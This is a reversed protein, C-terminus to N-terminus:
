IFSSDPDQTKCDKLCLSGVGSKCPEDDIFPIFGIYEINDMMQFHFICVRSCHKRQIICYVNQSQCIFSVQGASISQM